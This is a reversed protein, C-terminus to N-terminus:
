VLESENCSGDYCGYQCAYKTYTCGGDLNCYYEVVYKGECYDTLGVTTTSDVCTGKVAYNIGGDSDTCVGTQTTAGPTLGGMVAGLTTGTPLVIFDAFLSVIFYFVTLCVVFVVIKEGTKM